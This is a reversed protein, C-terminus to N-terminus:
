SNGIEDPVDEVRFTKGCLDDIYRLGDGCDLLTEEPLCDRATADGWSLGGLGGAKIDGGKGESARNQHVTQMLLVKRTKALRKMMTSLQMVKEIENKTGRVEYKQVGDVLVVDPSYRNIDSVLDYITQGELEENGLVFLKGKCKARRKLARKFRIRQVRELNGQRFRKWNLKADLADLREQFEEQSMEKSILLVRKEQEFYHLAFLLLIWTKGLAPRGSLTVLNESRMMVIIKNLGTFPTNFMQGNQLEKAKELVSKKYHDPKVTGFEVASAHANLELGQLGMRLMNIAESSKRDTLLPQIRDALDTLRAMNERENLQECYHLMPERTKILTFEPFRKKFSAKSPYKGHREKFQVIWKYQKTYTKFVDESYPQQEFERQEAENASLLRSLVLVEENRAM